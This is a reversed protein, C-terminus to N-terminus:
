EITITRSISDIEYVGLNDIFEPHHEMIFNPDFARFLMRASININGILDEPIM